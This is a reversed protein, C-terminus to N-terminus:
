FDSVDIKNTNNQMNGPPGEVVPELTSVVDALLLSELVTAAGAVVSGGPFM